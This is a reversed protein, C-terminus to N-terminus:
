DNFEEKFQERLMELGRSVRMKAGSVTIGLAGAIEKMSLEHRFRLILSERYKPALAMVYEFAKKGDLHDDMASQSDVVDERRVMVTADDMFVHIDRGQKRLSDRAVNLGLSYLWPFFRKGLTFTELRQYARTFAEQALDAALPGDGVMRLMLSYVVGQYERVLTEFAQADGLLVERVIETEREKQM